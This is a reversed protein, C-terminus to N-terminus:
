FTKVADKLQKIQDLVTLTKNFLNSHGKIGERIFFSVAEKQTKFVNLDILFNIKAWEADDLMDKEFIEGDSSFISVDLEPDNDDDMAIPDPLIDFETDDAVVVTGRPDTKV